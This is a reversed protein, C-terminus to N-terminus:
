RTMNESVIHMWEVYLRGGGPPTGWPSGGHADVEAAVDLGIADLAVGDGEAVVVEAAEVVAEVLAVAEVAEAHDAGFAEGLAAEDDGEGGHLVAEGDLEGDGLDEVGEGAVEDVGFAGVGEEVAELQGGGVALAQLGDGVGGGDDAVAVASRIDDFGDADVDGWGAAGDFDFVGGGGLGLLIARRLGGSARRFVISTMGDGVSTMRGRVMGDGMNTMRFATFFGRMEGDGVSTMRGRVMGDGMNTMRFATFFGRMEGESAGGAGVGGGRMEGEVAGGAGVGGGRVEFGFCWGWGEAGVAGFFLQEGAVAQEVIHFSDGFVGVEHEVDWVGLFFGPDVEGDCGEGGCGVWLRLGRVKSECRRWGVIL